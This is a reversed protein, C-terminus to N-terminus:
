IPLGEKGRIIANTKFDIKDSIDYSLKKCITNTHFINELVKIEM